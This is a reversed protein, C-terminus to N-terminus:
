PADLALPPLEALWARIAAEGDNLACGVGEALAAADVARRIKAAAEFLGRVLEASAAAVGASTWSRESPDAKPRRVLFGRSSRLRRFFRPATTPVQYAKGTTGGVEATLWKLKSLYAAMGEASTLSKVVSIGFKLDRARGTNGGKSLAWVRGGYRLSTQGCFEVEGGDRAFRALTPSWIIAHVHLFQGRGSADATAHQEWVQVAKLEIRRCDRVRLGLSRACNERMRKLLERFRGGCSRAAAYASSHRDRSETVTLFLCDAADLRTGKSRVEGAPGIFTDQLVGCLKRTSFPACRPCRWSKCRFVATELADGVRLFTWSEALCALVSTPIVPAERLVEGTRADIKCRLGDLWDGWGNERARERFEAIQEARHAPDTEARAARIAHRNAHIRATTPTSQAVTTSPAWTM